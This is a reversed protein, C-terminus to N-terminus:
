KRERKKVSAYKAGFACIDTAGLGILLMSFGGKIVQASTAGASSFGASGNMQHVDFMAGVAEPTYYALMCLGFVVIIVGVIIGCIHFVQELDLPKYAKQVAEAATAAHPSSAAVAHPSAVAVHPEVAPAATQSAVAQQPAGYAAQYAAQHMAATRSAQDTNEPM